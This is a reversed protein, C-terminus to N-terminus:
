QNIRRKELGSVEKMKAKEKKEEEKWTNPYKVMMLKHFFDEFAEHHKMGGSLREIDTLESKTVEQKEIMEEIERMVEKWEKAKVVAEIINPYKATFRRETVHFAYAESISVEGAEARKMIEHYKKEFEEKKPAEEKEWTWDEM